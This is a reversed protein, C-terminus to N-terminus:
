TTGRTGRDRDALPFARHLFSAAAAVSRQAACQLLTSAMPDRDNRLCLPVPLGLAGVPSGTSCISTLNTITAERTPSARPCQRASAFNCQGGPSAVRRQVEPEATGTRLHYLVMFFPLLLQLRSTGAPRRRPPKSGGGGLGRKSSYAEAPGPVAKLTIGYLAQSCFGSGGLGRLLGRPFRVLVSPM